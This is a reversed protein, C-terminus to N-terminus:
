TMSSPRLAHRAIAAIVYCSARITGAGCGRAVFCLAFIPIGIEAPFSAMAGVLRPCRVAASAVGTGAAIRRGVVHKRVSLASGKMSCSTVSWMRAHLAVGADRSLLPLVLLAIERM